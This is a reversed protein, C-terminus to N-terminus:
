LDKPVQVFTFIQWMSEYNIILHGQKLFQFIPDCVVHIEMKKINLWANIEYLIFFKFANYCVKMKKPMSAISMWIINDWKSM